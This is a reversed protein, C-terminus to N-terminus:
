CTERCDQWHQCGNSNGSGTSRTGCHCGHFGSCTGGGTSCVASARAQAVASVALLALMAAASAVLIELLVRALAVVAPAAVSAVVAPADQHQRPAVGHVCMDTLSVTVTVRGSAGCTGVGVFVVALRTVSPVRSVSASATSAEGPAVALVPTGAAFVVIAAAAAGVSM